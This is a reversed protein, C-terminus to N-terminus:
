ISVPQRPLAFTAWLGGTGASRRSRRAREFLVRRTILAPLQQQRRGHGSAMAALQVVPILTFSM